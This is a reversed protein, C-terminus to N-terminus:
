LAGAKKLLAIMDQLDQDALTREADSPNFTGVLQRWAGATVQRWQSNEEETPEYVEVGRSKLAERENASRTLESAFIRIQLSSGVEDAAQNAWNPLGDYRNLDMVLVNCDWIGGTRTFHTIHPNLDAALLTSASVYLGEVTNRKFEAPVRPWDVPVARAGWTHVLSFEAPSKSVRISREVLEDPIRVPGSTTALGKSEGKPFVSLLQLRENQQMSASLKQMLWSELITEAAESNRFIFPLELLTLTLGFAGMDSCSLVALDTSQRRAAEVCEYEICLKGKLQTALDIRGNTLSTFQDRVLDEPLNRPPMTAPGGGAIRLTLDASAAPSAAFPVLWVILAAIASKAATRFRPM